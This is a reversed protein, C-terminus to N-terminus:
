GGQQNEVDGSVVERHVQVVMDRDLEATGAPALSYFFDYEGNNVSVRISAGHARAYDYSCKDAEGSCTELPGGTHEGRDYWAVLSGSRVMAPLKARAEREATQRDIGQQSMVKLIEV